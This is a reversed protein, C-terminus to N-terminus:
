EYSFASHILKEDPLILATLRGVNHRFTDIGIKNEMVLPYGPISTEKGEEDKAKLGDCPFVTHGFIIKKGWDYKSTLFPERMWIVDYGMDGERIALPTLKDLLKKHEEISTNPYLGGHVFFYSENEYYLDLNHMFDFYEQSILDKPQMIALEYESFGLSKPPKFSELTEKGGQKYWLDWSRYVPQKPNFADIMLSEHNGFLFKWHPYNEKWEILRDLVQKTRPGGDVYDGLFVIVDKDFDIGERKLSDMVESLQEYHGHIDGIAVVKNKRQM